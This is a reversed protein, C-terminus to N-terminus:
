NKCIDLIQKQLDSNQKQLENNSKIVELVLNTLNNSDDTVPQIETIGLGGCKNKHYWLGSREKYSKGCECAYKNAVFTTSNTSSQQLNTSIQHKRTM